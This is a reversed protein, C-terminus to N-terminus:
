LTCAVVMWEPLTVLPLSSFVGDFVEVGVVEDGEIGRNMPSKCFGDTMAM